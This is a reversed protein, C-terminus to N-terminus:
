EPPTAWLSPSLRDNACQLYEEHISLSQEGNYSKVEAFNFGNVRPGAFKALRFPEPTYDELEHNRHAASIKTQVVDVQITLLFNVFTKHMYSPVGSRPTM